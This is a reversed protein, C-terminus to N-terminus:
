EQAHQLTFRCTRPTADLKPVTCPTVLLGLRRRTPLLRALAATLARDAWNLRPRPSRRQLIALQHRLVLIEIEKARHSRALLIMWGLFKSFMLYILRLAVAPIM